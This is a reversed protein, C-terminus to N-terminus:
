NQLHITALAAVIALWINRCIDQGHTFVELTPRKGDEERQWIWFYEIWFWTPPAFSWFILWGIAANRLSSNQSCLAAFHVITFLSVLVSAYSALTVWSNARESGYADAQFFRRKRGIVPPPESEM